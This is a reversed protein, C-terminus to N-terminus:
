RAARLRTEAVLASFRDPQELSVLHAAGPFVELRGDPAARALAAGEEPSLLPDRDGVAVVLAGRFSPVAATLDPRDRLVAVARALLAADQERAIGRVREVLEAPAEPSLLRPRMEEFVAEPGARELLAITAERAARREPSDADARAGALVLARVREPAAQAMALACYGGLSAGVVVLEDEGSQELLARAWEELSDGLGYLAPAEVTEDALAALQPEWM